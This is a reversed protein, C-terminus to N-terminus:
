KIEKKEANRQSWKSLIIVALVLAVALFVKSIYVSGFHWGWRPFNFTNDFIGFISGILGGIAGFIGGVIGFVTGFIVGLIGFVFPLM